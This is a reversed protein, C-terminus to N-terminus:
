YFRASSENIRRAAHKGLLVLRDDGFKEGRMGRERMAICRRFKRARADREIGARIQHQERMAVAAVSEEGRDQRAGGSPERRKRRGRSAITTAEAPIVPWPLRRTNSCNPYVKAAHHRRDIEFAHLGRERQRCAPYLKGDGDGAESESPSGVAPEPDRSLVCGLDNADAEAADVAQDKWEDREREDHARCRDERM